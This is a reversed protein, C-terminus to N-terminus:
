RTIKISLGSSILARSISSTTVWVGFKKEILVAMKDLYLGPNELLHDCLFQLIHSSVSIRRGVRNEPVRPTRFLELNRRINTVSRESCLTVRAIDAKALPERSNIMDRAIELQLLSLRPAMRVSGVDSDGLPQSRSSSVQQRSSWNGCFTGTRDRSFDAISM